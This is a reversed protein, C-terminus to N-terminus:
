GLLAGMLIGREPRYGEVDLGITGTHTSLKAMAEIAASMPQPFFEKELYSRPSTVCLAAISM